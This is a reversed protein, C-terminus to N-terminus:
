PAVRPGPDTRFMPECAITGEGTNGTWELRTEYGHTM